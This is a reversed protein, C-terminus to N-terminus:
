KLHKYNKLEQYKIPTKEESGQQCLIYESDLSEIVESPDYDYNSIIYIRKM